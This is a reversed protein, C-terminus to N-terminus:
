GKGESLMAAMRQLKRGVEEMTYFFTFFRLLEDIEQDAQQLTSLQNLKETAHNLATDIEPLSLQSKTSKVAIALTLMANQTEQALETIQSSLLQWFTDQQRALVTHEMTLIHEWIRRILFEWAENIQAEPPESTQGQKVEQWLERGTRLSTIINLKLTDVSPRDYTGTFACNIVLSYFQDLSILTQSLCRRLEQNARAPFIFNNVVLAVAIGLLTELFRHWAYVWPQQSHSLIVIASVYGALKAAEQFKWTSALFITIFVCIGLSWFNSGLLIVFFAGAIAGIATGILRQVGLKLTSGQTSSMVIIAAIVAYFPYDWQLTQAIVLSVTSAIAIKFAMRSQLTLSLGQPTVAWTQLNFLIRSFLSRPQHKIPRVVPPPNDPHKVM